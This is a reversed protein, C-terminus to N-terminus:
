QFRAVVAVMEAQAHNAKVVDGAAGAMDNLDAWVLQGALARVYDHYASQFDDPCSGLDIRRLDALYGRASDRTAGRNVRAQNAASMLRTVRNLATGEM